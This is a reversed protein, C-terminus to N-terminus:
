VEPNTAAVQPGVHKPVSRVESISPAALWLFHDCKGLQDHCFPGHGLDHQKSIKSHSQETQLKTSDSKKATFFSACHMDLALNRVSALRPPVSFTAIQSGVFAAMSSLLYVAMADSWGSHQMDLRQSTLTRKNMSEQTLTDANLLQREVTALGLYSTRLKRGEAHAVDLAPVTARSQKPEETSQILELERKCFHWIMELGVENCSSQKQILTSINPQGQISQGLKKSHIQHKKQAMITGKLCADTFVM